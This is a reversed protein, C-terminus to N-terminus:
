LEVVSEIESNGSEVSVLRLFMNHEATIKGAFAAIIIRAVKRQIIYQM